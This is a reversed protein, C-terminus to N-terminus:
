RKAPNIMELLNRAKDADAVVLATNHQVQPSDDQWGFRAKLGFISGVQNGKLQYCNSELQDMIPLECHLKVLDSPLTLNGGAGETTETATGAGSLLEGTYLDINVANLDNCSRYEEVIYDLEGSRMRNITDYSVGASMAYGAWTVPQRRERQTMTYTDWARVMNSLNDVNVPTRKRQEQISKKASAILGSKYENISLVADTKSM